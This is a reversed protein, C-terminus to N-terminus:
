RHVNIRFGKVFAEDFDYVGDFDERRDSRSKKMLGISIMNFVVEGFDGTTRLGWSNLVTKAMLGFQELAFVRIAECLQQGSLHRDPEAEEALKGKRRESAESEETKGMELVDQAYTLAERVFEYAEIKYRRDENLKKILPHVNSSM